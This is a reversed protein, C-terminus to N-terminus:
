AKQEPVSDLTNVRLNTPIHSKSEDTLGEVDVLRSSRVEMNSHQRISISGEHQHAVDSGCTRCVRRSITMEDRSFNRRMSEKGHLGNSQMPGISSKDRIKSKAVTSLRSWAANGILSWVTVADVDSGSVSNSRMSSTSRVIGFSDNIDARGCSCREDELM